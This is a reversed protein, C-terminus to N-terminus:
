RSWDGGGRVADKRRPKERTRVPDIKTKRPDCLLCGHAGAARSTDVWGLRHRAAWGLRLGDAWGLGFEMRGLGFELDAWDSAWGLGTRGLGGEAAWGEVKRILYIRSKTAHNPSM